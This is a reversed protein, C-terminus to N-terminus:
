LLILLPFFLLSVVKLRKKWRAPGVRDSGCAPCSPGTDVADDEPEPDLEPPRDGFAYALIERAREESAEEVQLRIGQLATSWQWANGALFEDPILAALGEAELLSKAM